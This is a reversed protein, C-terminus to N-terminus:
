EKTLTEDLNLILNGLMTMAAYESPNLSEDRKSEGVSLLKVAEDPKSQYHAHHEQFMAVLVELEVPSPKRGTALRFGHTLRDPYTTGGELLMRRAFHRSAEVYPVDNMTALAQLPTNTRPRRVTCVERSPADFTTMSPPPSTRKWFTYMSRRYLSEGADRKFSSTTSGVFAVAEWLGDPQYTKVSKGGVKEVLLGSTFLASDRIVEADFRFRPGRALLINEPDRQYLTPRRKRHATGGNGAPM